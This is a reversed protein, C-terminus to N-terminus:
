RWALGVPEFRFGPSLHSTAGAPEGKPTGLIGALNLVHHRSSDDIAGALRYSMRLEEQFGFAGPATTHDFVM